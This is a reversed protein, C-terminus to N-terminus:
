KRRRKDDDNDKAPKGAAMDRLEADGNDRGEFPGFVVDAAKDAIWKGLGM